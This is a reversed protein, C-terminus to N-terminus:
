CADNTDDVSQVESSPTFGQCSSLDLTPLSNSPFFSILNQNYILSSKFCPPPPPISSFQCFSIATFLHLFIIQSSNQLSIHCNAQLYSFFCPPHPHILSFILHLIPSSVESFSRLVSIRPLVTFSPLLSTIFSHFILHPPPLVFISFGCSLLPNFISSSTTIHFTFCRMLTLILSSFRAAFPSFPYRIIYSSTRRKYPVSSLFFLKSSSYLHFPFLRRLSISLFPSQHSNSVALLNIFM